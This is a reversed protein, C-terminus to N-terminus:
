LTSGNKNNKSESIDWDSSKHDIGKKELMYDRLDSLRKIELIYVKRQYCCIISLIVVLVWPIFNAIILNSLSDCIKSLIVSQDGHPLKWICLSCIFFFGFLCIFIVLTGFRGKDILKICIQSFKGIAYYIVDKWTRKKDNKTKSKSQSKDM